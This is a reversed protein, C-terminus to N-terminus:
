SHILLRIQHVCEVPGGLDDVTAGYPLPALRISFSDTRAHDFYVGAHPDYPPIDISSAMRVALQPIM